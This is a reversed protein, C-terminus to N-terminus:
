VVVTKFRKGLLEVLVYGELIIILPLLPFSFRSSGGYTVLAQLISSVLIVSILFIENTFIKHTKIVKIISILVFPILLINLLILVFRQLNYM